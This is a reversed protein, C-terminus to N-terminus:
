ATGNCVPFNISVHMVSVKVSFSALTVILISMILLVRFPFKYLVYAIVGTEMRLNYMIYM